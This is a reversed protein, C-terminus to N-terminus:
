IQELVIVIMRLIELIGISKDILEAGTEVELNFVAEADHCVDTLNVHPEKIAILLTVVLKGICRHHESRSGLNELGTMDGVVLFAQFFQCCVVGAGVELRWRANKRFHLQWDFLNHFSVM